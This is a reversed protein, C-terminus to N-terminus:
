TSESGSDNKIEIAEVELIQNDIIKENIFKLIEDDSKNNLVNMTNINIQTKIDNTQGYGFKAGTIQKWYKNGGDKGEIMRDRGFTLWWAECLPLGEDHAAKFEPRTRIWEYFTEKSIGFKGYIQCDLLGQSMYEILKKPNEPRWKTM